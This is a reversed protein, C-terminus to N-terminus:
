KSQVAYKKMRAADRLVTRIASQCGISVDPSTLIDDFIPELTQHVLRSMFKTAFFDLSNWNNVIREVEEPNLYGSIPISKPEKKVSAHPVSSIEDNTFTTSKTETQNAQSLGRRYKNTSRIYTNNASDISNFLIIFTLLSILCTFNSPPNM